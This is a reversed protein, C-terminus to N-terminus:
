RRRRWTGRHWLFVKGSPTMYGPKRTTSPYFQEVNEKWKNIITNENRRLNINDPLRELFSEYFNGKRPNASGHWGLILANPFRTKFFDDSKPHLTYCGSVMILRPREAIFDLSVGGVRGRMVKTLNIGRTQIPLGTRPNKPHFSGPPLGHRVWHHGTFILVDSKQIRDFLSGTNLIQM